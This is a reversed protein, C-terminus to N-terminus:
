PTIDASTLTHVRLEDGSIGDLLRGRVENLRRIAAQGIRQNILLQTATLTFVADAATGAPAVDTTTPPTSTSPGLGAISITAQLRDTTVAGDQVDGGSLGGDLRALLANAERVARAAIRQNIRLQDVSLTFVVGTKDAAPPVVVPRPTAVPVARTDPAGTVAVGAGLAWAGISGGCLDDTRIRAGLWADLANARRIAASYIRQNIRLQTVSLTVDDAPDSPPREPPAPCLGPPVRDSRLIRFPYQSVEWGVLAEGRGPALVMRDVGDATQFKVPGPFAAAASAATAWASSLGSDPSEWALLSTGLEDVAVRVQGASQFEDNRGDQVAYVTEEAGWSGGPSRRRVRLVIGRPNLTVPDPGLEEDLSVRFAVTAHGATGVAAVPRSGIPALLEAAGWPSARDQRHSVAVGVGPAVGKWAAVAPGDTAIAISVSVGAPDLLVPSDWGGAAPDHTVAVVPALTDGAPGAAAAEGSGAVAVSPLVGLVVPSGVSWRRPTSSGLNLTAARVQWGGGGVEGWAFTGRGGAFALAPSAIQASTASVLRREPEWGVTAGPRIAYRIEARAGAPPRRWVVLARGTGDVAVRVADPRKEHVGSLRTRGGWPGGPRPRSRAYVAYGAGARDVHAAVNRGSAGVGLDLSPPETTPVSTVDEFAVGQSAGALLAACVAFATLPHFPHVHRM